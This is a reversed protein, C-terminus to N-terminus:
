GEDSTRRGHHVSFRPGDPFRALVSEPLNLWYNIDWYAYMADGLALFEAVMEPTRAAGPHHEAKWREFPWVRMRGTRFEDIYLLGTPGNWALYDSNECAAIVAGIDFPVRQHQVQWTDRTSTLLAYSAMGPIGDLPLGASGPNILTLLTNESRPVQRVFPLHIHATIAYDARIGTLRASLVADTMDPYIGNWPDGPLGHMIHLLPADPFHLTLEDPMLALRAQWDPSITARLWRPTTYGAWGAPERATGHYLLYFEHNGRIMTWGRGAIFDLVAESQPGVNIMDGAVIVADPSFQAMHAEIAHLAPLNGHIDALVALTTM